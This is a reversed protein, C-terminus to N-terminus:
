TISFTDGDSPATTLATFTFLPLAASTNATIDTAQGRLAPTTTDKDFIIIRGKFQDTAAGAPDLSSPTFTTTTPSTGSVTGRLVVRDGRDDIRTLITQLDALTPAEATGDWLLAGLGIIDAGDRILVSYSGPDTGGPVDATYWGAITGSETMSIPSGVASAAQVLTATLTLGATGAYTLEYAM